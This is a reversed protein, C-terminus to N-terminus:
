PQFGFKRLLRGYPTVGKEVAHWGRFQGYRDWLCEMGQLEEANTESWTCNVLVLGDGGLNTERRVVVVEPAETNGCRDVKGGLVINWFGGNCERQSAYNAHKGKSVWVKPRGRPNDAWQLWSVTRTRDGAPVWSGHHASMTIEETRWSESEKTYKVIMRIFESDGKHAGIEGTDEHYGLAYFISITAGRPNHIQAAWYQERSNSSETSDFVLVPAFRAAINYECEDWLGDADADFGPRGREVECQRFSWHLGDKLSIGEVTGLRRSDVQHVIDLQDSGSGRKKLLQLEEEESSVAGGIGVNPTQRLGIPDPARGLGVVNDLVGEPMLVVVPDAVWRFPDLQVTDGDIRFGVFSLPVAATDFAVIIAQEGGLWSLRHLAGPIRLEIRGLARLVSDTVHQHISDRLTGNMNLHDTFSIQREPLRSEQFAQHLAARIQDSRLSRSLAQSLAQLDSDVIAPGEAVGSTTREATGCSAIVIALLIISVAHALFSPSAHNLCRTQM